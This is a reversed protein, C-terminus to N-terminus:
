HRNFVLSGKSSFNSFSIRTGEVKGNIHKNNFLCSFSNNPILIIKNDEISYKGYVSEEDKGFTNVLVFNNDKKLELIISTSTQCFYKGSYPNSHCDSSLLFALLIIIIISLTLGKM